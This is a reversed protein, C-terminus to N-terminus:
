GPGALTFYQEKQRRTLRKHGQLVVTGPNQNITTLWKESASLQVGTHRPKLVSKTENTYENGQSLHQQLWTTEMLRRGLGRTQWVRIVSM